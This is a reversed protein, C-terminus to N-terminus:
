EDQHGGYSRLAAIAEAYLASLNDQNEISKIKADILQIEKEKKKKELRANTSGLKLFHVTEASSATGERIRKEVLDVASAILQNERAEPDLAPRRKISNSTEKDKAKM